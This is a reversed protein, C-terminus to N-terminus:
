SRNAISKRFTDNQTLLKYTETEIIPEIREISNKIRTEFNFMNTYCKMWSYIKKSINLKNGENFDYLDCFWDVFKQSAREMLDISTIPENVITYSDTERIQESSLIKKM